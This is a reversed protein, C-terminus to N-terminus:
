RGDGRREEHEQGASGERAQQAEWLSKYAGERALLAEHTGAQVVTGESLVVIRHSDMATKLQHTVLITTRGRTLRGLAEVVRQESTADLGVTPEDLIVIPADRLIARAIALRRKQGGSLGAGDEGLETEYGEPLREIFEHAGAAEAARRIEEDGAGPRAMAINEKVSVGFIYSDQLVVAMQGRLSSLKFRRIDTGDIRVEGEWPDYLRMLLHIATSKGSGSDGVLALKTGSPIELSFDRLVPQDKRYGFTVRDFVVDGRFAPATVADPRETAGIESPKLGMIEDIRELAAASKAWRSAFKSIERIPKFLSNLYSLFVMLQGVTLCGHVIRVIGVFLVSVSAIGVLFDMSATLLGQFRGARMAHAASERGGEMFEDLLESELSLTTVAKHFYFAEQVNSALAGEIRRQQRVAERTRRTFTVNAGYVLPIVLLFTLAYIWDMAFSVVLIGVVTPLSRVFVTVLGELIDQADATDKSIRSTLDGTRAGEFFSHPLTILHSFLRRRLTLVVDQGLRTLGINQFYLLMANGLYIALLLGVGILVFDFREGHVFEDASAVLFNLLRYKLDPDYVGAPNRVVHDIMNRIPWPQLLTLATQGAMVLAVALAPKRHRKLAQFVESRGGAAVPKSFATMRM